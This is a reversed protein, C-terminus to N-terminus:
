YKEQEYRCKRCLGSNTSGYFHIFDNDVENCKECYGIKNKKDDYWPGLPNKKIIKKAKLQWKRFENEDRLFKRTKPLVNNAEDTVTQVPSELIIEKDQGYSVNSFSDERQIKLKM